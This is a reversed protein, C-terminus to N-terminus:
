RTRGTSTAQKQNDQEKSLVWAKAFLELDDEYDHPNITKGDKYMNELDEYTTKPKGGDILTLKREGKDEKNKKGKKM